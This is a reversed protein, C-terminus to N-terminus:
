RPNKRETRKKKAYKEEVWSREILWQKGIRVIKDKPIVEERLIYANLTRAQIKYSAEIEQLTMYNRVDM